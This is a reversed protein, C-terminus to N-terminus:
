KLKKDIWVTLIHWVYGLIVLIFSIGPISNQEAMVILIALGWILVITLVYVYIIMWISGDTDKM